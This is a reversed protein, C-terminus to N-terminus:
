HLSTRRMKIERNRNNEKVEVTQAFVDNSAAHQSERCTLVQQRDSRGGALLRSLARVHGSVVVHLCAHSSSAPSPKHWRKGKCCADTRQTSVCEHQDALATCDCLRLGEFIQPCARYTQSSPHQKIAPGSSTTGSSVSETGMHTM